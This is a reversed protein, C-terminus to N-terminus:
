TVFYTGNEKKNIRLNDVHFTGDDFVEVIAFGHNWKTYAFPRYNPTLQCLAGTSYCAMSDGKLNNEHHESTQHNHGALVSSKARLFLGRAPNVPSFVSEGFEHGHIVILKGMYLKQRSEVFDIGLEDLKLFNSFSFDSVESLEPSNRKLYVNWREEHNGMKFTIPVNVNTKLYEVFEFFMEREESITPAYSERLFRSIAACDLIDGNLYISDIGSKVGHEIAVMLVDLDHYPIHIDSLILAKKYKYHIDPLGIKIPNLNYEKGVISPDRSERFYKKLEPSVIVKKKEGINGRVYLVSKRVAELSNWLQPYMQYLDRAITRSPYDYSLKNKDIYQRIIESKSM